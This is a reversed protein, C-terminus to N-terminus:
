SWVAKRFECACPQPHGIQLVCYDAVPCASSTVEFAKLLAQVAAQISDNM